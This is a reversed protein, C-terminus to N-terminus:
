RVAVKTAVNDVIVVYIGPAVNILSEGRGDYVTTGNLSVIRVHAADSVCITGNDVGVKSDGYVVSDIVGASEDIAQIDFFGKWGPATSYASVAEQPVYLVGSFYTDESFLDETIPPVTRRSVVTKIATNQKFAGNAISKLNESCTVTEVNPVASFTTASVNRGLYVETISNSSLPSTFTTEGDSLTIKGVEILSLDSGFKNVNSGIVLEDVSSHLIFNNNFDSNISVKELSTLSIAGTSISSVCSPISLSKISSDKLILMGSIEVPTFAHNRYTVTEPIVVDGSVDDTFAFLRCTQYNSSIIEYKM